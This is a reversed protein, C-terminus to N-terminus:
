MAVGILGIGGIFRMRLGWSNASTFAKMRESFSAAFYDEGPAAHPNMGFAAAAEPPLM